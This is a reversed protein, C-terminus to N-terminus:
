ACPLVSRLELFDTVTKSLFGNDKAQDCVDIDLSLFVCLNDRFIDVMLEAANAKGDGIM